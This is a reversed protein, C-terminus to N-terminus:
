AALRVLGLQDFHKNPLAITLAKQNSTKWWRRANGAAKNAEDHSIGRKRLERYVVPGSRWHKLQLARLRRRIWGDLDAFVYPTEALRFYGKWGRLYTSLDTCVRQM